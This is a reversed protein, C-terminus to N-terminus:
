YGRDLDVVNLLPHGGVYRRLNEAFLAGAREFMRTTAAGSSHATVIASPASWLPHDPPLPERVTVDLYAGAIQREHLARALADEDVLAGRAINILYSSARMAALERGGIMERTEPTAAAALIVWDFEGLRARWDAPGIVGLEGRPDSRV